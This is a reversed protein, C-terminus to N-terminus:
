QSRLDCLKEARKSIACINRESFILSALRLWGHFAIGGLIPVLWVSVVWAGALFAKQVGGDTGAGQSLIPVAVPAVCNQVREDRYEIEDSAPRSQVEITIAERRAHKRGVLRKQHDSIEARFGALIVLDAEHHHHLAYEATDPIRLGV